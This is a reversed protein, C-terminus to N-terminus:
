EKVRKLDELVEARVAAAVRAWAVKTAECTHLRMQPPLQDPTVNLWAAVAVLAMRDRPNNESWLRLRHREPSEDTETM